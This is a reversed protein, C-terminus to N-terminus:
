HRETIERATAYKVLKVCLLARGSEKVELTGHWLAYRQAIRESILVRMSKDLTAARHRVASQAASEDSVIPADVPAPYDPQQHYTNM